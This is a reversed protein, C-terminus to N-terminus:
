LAPSHFGGLGNAEAALAQQYQQEANEIQRLAARGIPSSADLGAEVIAAELLQRQAAFIVDPATAEDFGRERFAAENSREAAEDAQQLEVQLELMREQIKFANAVAKIFARQALGETNSSSSM